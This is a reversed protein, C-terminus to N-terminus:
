DYSTRIKVLCATLPDFDLEVYGEGDPLAILLSVSEFVGNSGFDLTEGDKVGRFTSEGHRKILVGNGGSVISPPLHVSKGEKIALQLAELTKVQISSVFQRAIM